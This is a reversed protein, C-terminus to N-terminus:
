ISCSSGMRLNMTYKACAKLTMTLVIYYQMIECEISALDIYTSIYARRAPSHVQTSGISHGLHHLMKYTM